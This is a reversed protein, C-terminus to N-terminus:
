QTGGLYGPADKEAAGVARALELKALNHAYLSSIYAEHAAAVASQAQVVELNDSVGATFRYKAQGLTLEAVEVRTKAEEVQEAAAKLDLLSARVEFEIRARLDALDDRSRALAAAAKLNRSAARTREIAALDFVSQSLFVRIDYYGYPGVVTPVNPLKLGRAALNDRELNASTATTLNPLLASLEQWRRGSESRVAEGRQLLGLNRALGRELAEKLSLHLATGTAEGQQVSGLFSSRPELSGPIAVSPTYAPEGVTQAVACVRGSLCIVALIFVARMKM